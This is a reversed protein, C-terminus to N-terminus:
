LSEGDTPRGVSCDADGATSGTGASTITTTTAAGSRASVCGFIAPYSATTAAYTEPSADGATAADKEDEDWHESGATTAENQAYDCRQVGRVIKGIPVVVGRIAEGDSAVEEVM